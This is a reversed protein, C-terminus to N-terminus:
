FRSWTRILISEKCCNIALALLLSFFFPPNNLISQVFALYEGPTANHTSMTYKHLYQVGTTIFLHLIQILQSQHAAPISPSLLCVVFDRSLSQILQSLAVLVSLATKIGIVLGKSEQCDKESIVDPPESHRLSESRSITILDRHGALWAALVTTLNAPQKCLDLNNLTFIPALTPKMAQFADVIYHFQQQLVPIVSECTAHATVLIRLLVFTDNVVIIQAAHDSNEFDTRSLLHIDILRRLMRENAPESYAGYILTHKRTLKKLLVISM